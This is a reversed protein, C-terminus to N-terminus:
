APLSQYSLPPSADDLAAIAEDIESTSAFGLIASHVQPHALAFRIAERPLSRGPGLKAGWHAARQRDREYLALPFFPTKVTHPSPANGALAGGALVRIALVGMGVAACSAIVNGYDTEAFGSEMAQGASPNLLHYPAQMTAFRGSAIVERLAAPQGIGTIGLHRVLGRGKCEEFAEAIGGPRLVDDPTVSTPEDGRGVTISNHLQLLSIERVELRRLSAEVSQAAAAGVDDLDAPTFRVKTAVHVEYRDGVDALIRGLGSESAGNGYTAATDFWNIGQKLAHAVVERQREADSGVMLQSIPGAGFAIRSVAIGTMGLSRYQMAVSKIDKVEAIPHKVM